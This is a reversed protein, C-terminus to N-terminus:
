PRCCILPILWVVAEAITVIVNDIIDILIDKDCDYVIDDRTSSM